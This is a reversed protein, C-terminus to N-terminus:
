EKKIKLILAEHGCSITVIRGLQSIAELEDTGAFIENLGGALSRHGIRVEFGQDVKELLFGRKELFEIVQDSM